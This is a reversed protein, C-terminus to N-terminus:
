QSGPSRPRGLDDAVTVGVRWFHYAAWVALLTATLMAYRLSDSGVLPRLADSLIGVSQPGLGMGILNALLMVIAVLRAQMREDALRQMLAFTPGFLFNGVVALPVISMLAWLKSPILLFCAFFPVLVAITVASVRMQAAEDDGLWRACIHGGALTGALGGLGFILGLWMGLEATGMGHSRMLFAAYWPAQGLWMTYLLIVGLTLHRLARKRWMLKVVERLSPGVHRSAPATLVTLRPDHVTLKALVAVLLAPAGMIFFTKRWGYHAGLYGGLIFSGLSALPQGLMYISMARTREAPQPFYSGLLSYTPPMCGAEGVAAAIRAIILQTFNTVYVCLMVTVGWLAIAVSTLTVRNGTDAWRAIPLGITAYFLGFAIGTLLGLQTDTLLLDQKIPELLLIILGRDLYNLTYVTTLIALVYRRYNRSTRPEIPNQPDKM